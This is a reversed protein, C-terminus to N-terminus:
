RMTSVRFSQRRVTRFWIKRRVSGHAPTDGQKHSLSCNIGVCLVSNSGETKTDNANLRVIGAGLRSSIPWDPCGRIKIYRRPNCYMHLRYRTHGGHPGRTPMLRHPNTSVLLTLTDREINITYRAEIRDSTRSRDDPTKKKRISMQRDDRELM